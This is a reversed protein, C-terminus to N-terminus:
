GTVLAVAPYRWEVRRAPGRLLAKVASYEGHGSYYADVYAALARAYEEHFDPHTYRSQYLRQMRPFASAHESLFHRLQPDNVGSLTVKRPISAKALAALFVGVDGTLQLPKRHIAYSEWRNELATYRELRSLPNEPEVRRFKVVPVDVTFVTWSVDVHAARLHENFLARLRADDFTKRLLVEVPEPPIKTRERSGYFGRYRYPNTNFHEKWEIHSIAHWGILNKPVVAKVASLRDELDLGKTIEEAWAEFPATKDASRRDRVMNRIDHARWREADGLAEAAYADADQGCEEDSWDTRALASVVGREVARVTGHATRREKRATKRRKSPLLSRGMQLAKDKGYYMDKGTDSPQDSALDDTM